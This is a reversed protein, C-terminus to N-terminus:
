ENVYEMYAAAVHFLVFRILIQPQKITITLYRIHHLSYYFHKQAM